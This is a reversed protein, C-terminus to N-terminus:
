DRSGRGLAVKLIPDSPDRQAIDKLRRFEASVSAVKVVSMAPADDVTDDDNLILTPDGTGSKKQWTSGPTGRKRIEAIAEDFIAQHSNIKDLAALRDQEAQKLRHDADAFAAEAELLGAEIQALTLKGQQADIVSM